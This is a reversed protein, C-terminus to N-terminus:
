GASDGDMLDAKIEYCREAEDLISMDLECTLVAEHNDEIVAVRGLFPMAFQSHGASNLVGKSGKWTGATNCFVVAMENEFARATCCSDILIQESKPEHRQGTGADEMAWCSACIAIEAKQRFMGRFLEPFALDWCIALGVRGLRTDAVVAGDGPTVYPKEALWLNVKRYRALVEGSRDIYYTTNYIRGDDEKEQWSGPILDVSYETALRRFTRLNRGETDAYDQMGVGVGTVAYEPLVVLEAGEDAAQRIRLEAREVNDDIAFPNVGFQVVAIRSHMNYEGAFNSIYVDLTICWSAACSLGPGPCRRPGVRAGM